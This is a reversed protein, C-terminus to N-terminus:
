RGELTELEEDLRADWDDSAKADPAPPSAKSTAGLAAAKPIRPADNGGAVNAGASSESTLKDNVGNPANRPGILYRLLFVLFGLAAIGAGVPLMWGLRNKPVGSLNHEPVREGLRRKIEIADVGEAVWKRIEDRWPGANPCASVTRGPCFPSMISRSIAEAQRDREADSMAGASAAAPPPAAAGGPEDAAAGGSGLFSSSLLTAALLLPALRVRARDSADTPRHDVRLNPRSMEKAPNM